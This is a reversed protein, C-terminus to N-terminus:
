KVTSTGLRRLSSQLWLDNSLDTSHERAILDMFHTYEKAWTPDPEVLTVRQETPQGSPLIRSRHTFIAPGWKCLSEIHASGNEALLDCSFYNRWMCLTMELELRPQMEESSIVVHDLAKNEFTHASAMRFVGLKSGFWFRCIDLLHSGIDSLVGDGTDRWKSDRVLRATGNGYFMRCSYLNGLEGSGILDRMRVLHPEFRHNYAIYCVVNNQRAILELEEIQWNHETWLPKEVLIHKGHLVCYRMIGFKPEDPVCALVADYDKLPIEGLERYDAELNFPDVSAVFDAGAHSRRKYGQVGLGVVVVRM